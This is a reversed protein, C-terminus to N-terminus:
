PCHLRESGSTSSESFGISPITPSRSLAPIQLLHVSTEVRRGHWSPSYPAPGRQGRSRLNLAGNFSPHNATGLGGQPRTPAVPNSGAVEQVRFGALGLHGADGVDLPLIGVVPGHQGALLWRDAEM